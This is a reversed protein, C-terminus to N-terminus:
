WVPASRHYSPADHMKLSVRLVADRGGIAPIALDLNDVIAEAIANREDESWTGATESAKVAVKKLEQALRALPPRQPSNFLEYAEAAHQGVVSIVGSGLELLKANEACRLGEIVLHGVMDPSLSGRRNWLTEQTLAEFVGVVAVASAASASAARLSVGHPAGSTAAVRAAVECAGMAVVHEQGPPLPRSRTRDAFEEAAAVAGAAAAASAVCGSCRIWANSVTLGAWEVNAMCAAQEEEVKSSDPKPDDVKPNLRRKALEKLFNPMLEPKRPRFRFRPLEARARRARYYGQWTWTEVDGVGESFEGAPWRFPLAYAWLNWGCPHEAPSPCSHRNRAIPAPFEFGFSRLVLEDYVADGLWEGDAYPESGTCICLKPTKPAPPMIEEEDEDKPTANTGGALVWLAPAWEFYGQSVGLACISPNSLVAVDAPEFGPTDVLNEYRGRFVSVSVGPEPWNSIVHLKEDPYHHPLDPGVLVVRVLAQETALPRIWTDGDSWTLRDGGDALVATVDEGELTMAFSTANIENIQEINEGGPGYVKTGNIFHLDGDQLWPGQFNEYKYRPKPRVNEPKVVCGETHGEVEVKWRGKESIWRALVGRAGNMEPRASLGTLEVPDGSRVFATECLAGYQLGLEWATAGLVHVTKFGPPADESGFRIGARQVTSVITRALAEGHSPLIEINDAKLALSSDPPEGSLGIKWRGIEQVFRFVKGHRDNLEPRSVLGKLRIREGTRMTAMGM